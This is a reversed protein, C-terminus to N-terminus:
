FEYRMSVQMVRAAGDASGLVNQYNGFAASAGLNMNLTGTDFRVSNTLNFIEWRFQLNHGEWPLSFKKGFAVDLSYYGDGRLLNRDGTEGPRSNRFGDIAAEPDPFINPGGLVSNRNTSTGPCGRPGDICTANGTINWNTPWSRGNGVTAPLGSSVRVLGAFSWSGIIENAWSPIEGAFRKGRGFPLEIYWNANMQHRMDFDSFSYVTDIDWSNVLFGNVGGTGNGGYADAFEAESAHDRSKSLTYNIDFAVGNGFRKRGVLQFAHYESRGISSWASLAAFQDNFYAFRGFQSCPIRRASDPCQVDMRFLAFTYDPAAIDFRRYAEQTNTLGRGGFAGWTPYMNEWYPIRQVSSVPVGQEILQVLLSAATFYDMGSVPDVLNLPMALDRQSLLKRGRRGVYSAEVALDGPFERGVSVNFTHAYPTRIGSDLASTIAFSGPSDLFRNTPHGGPPVSPFGATPSPPLLSRPVNFLNGAFRPCAFLTPDGGEDCGGFTSDISTSLGFSGLEDFQNVLSSGVRDYVLSYGGRIVMKGNGFLKGLFGENFRPAWAAAVRPSWNNYDWAYYGPRNNAPGGLDFTLLPARTSPIGSNMFTERIRFWENLSPLPTVQDGKTEWPPSYLQYRVGFTVTLSPTPKWQDQAYFEYENTGFRRRVPTGEALTAGTRDFNYNATAQTIMGLLNIAVDHFSESFGESVAPVASCAATQVCDPDGPTIFAGEGNVWSPNSFFSHFSNTNSFKSNRAFRLATGFSVTHKGRTWVLDDGIHHNPLTRGDTDSSLGQINDLFRFNIFSADQLGVTSEKIRTLGYVFNNVLNPRLLSRYGAALGYSDVLKKTNPPQGPFQPTRNLVDDMLTGRLFVQHKSQSDLNFDSRVVITKFKFNIPAAFRFGHINVGDFGAAPDNGEPYQQFLALTAANPGIGLPDIAAFQAPSLLFSGAPVTIPRGAVNPSGGPCVSVPTLPGTGDPDACEYQIFGHRMVWSPVDRLASDGRIDRREEYNGFYFWRNKIVPGGVRGGFIHKLLKRRPQGSSNLFYENASFADNRHAYYASGHLENSGSRTVLAVQAASSRGQDANANSTTVRFEQLSDITARIAGQYALGRIPDNNDVGDLTINSQDSRSGNVSGSRSDDTPDSGTPIFVAGAQLSLLGAPDRGELPLNSLQTQNLVTGVSADVTNVLATSETVLITQSVEGLVLKIDLKAATNVLLQVKQRIAKHFGTKEVALDYFGPSLAVFQYRGSSDTSTERTAGTGLNTLTVKAGDVVLGNPDTVEGQISTTGMQALLASSPLVIALALLLVGLKSGKRV